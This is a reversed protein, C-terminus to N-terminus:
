SRSLSFAWGGAAESAPPSRPFYTPCLPASRLSRALLPSRFSCRWWLTNSRPRGTKISAGASSPFTCITHKEPRKTTGHHRAFRQHITFLAPELPAPPQEGDSPQLRRDAVRGTPALTARPGEASREGLGRCSAKGDVIVAAVSIPPRCHRTSPAPPNIPVLKHRWRKCRPAVTRPKPRELFKGSASSPTSQTAPSNESRAARERTTSPLSNTNWKIPPLAGSLEFLSGAPSRVSLTRLVRRSRSM